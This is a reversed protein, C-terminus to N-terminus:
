MDVERRLKETFENLATNIALVVYTHEKFEQVLPELDQYDTYDEELLDRALSHLVEYAATESIRRRLVM